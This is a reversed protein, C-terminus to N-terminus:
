AGDEGGNGTGDAALMGEERYWAATRRAGEAFGVEPVFGLVREAKEGSLTFSKRFFDLRRRHLPPQFGLPRLSVEMLTALAVFPPLPFRLRPPAADVAAAVDEVMRNTTVPEAGALLIVEGVADPETAAAMLGRVLDDVYIAHHINEGPGVLFFTGKEVARFLKLLRRDGPGYVESIRIVVVEPPGGHGLVVREGELKTEGYINDPDPPTDEDVTVEPSGYVGITSGHVFRRVGAAASAELVRRTGEVNVQHFVRDPVNMEHQTAALHFVTDRQEVAERVTGDDTVSGLVVEAGRDAVRRRNEAEADTNEQGLVRVPHGDELLRLALRSGIFGTGGTVLARM